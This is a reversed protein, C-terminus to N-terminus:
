RHGPNCLTRVAAPLDSLHAVGDRLRDVRWGPGAAYLPAGTSHLERLVTVGHHASGRAWVVIPGAASRKLAGRLAPAPLDYVVCCALGAEALAAALADLPLTHVEGPVASLLAGPQSGRARRRLADKRLVSQLVAVTLHECEIGQGTSSWRRGLARLHPAFVQTWAAVVGRQALVSRAVRALEAAALSEAAAALGAYLDLDGDSHDRRKRGAPLDLTGAQALAAARATPVGAEIMSRVRGITAIDTGSYRRHGGPTHGSPRLGYRREWARLTAPAVGIRRAAAAVGVGSIGNEAGSVANTHAGCARGALM